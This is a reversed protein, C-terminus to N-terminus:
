QIIEALSLLGAALQHRSARMRPLNVVVTPKGGKSGVGVAVSGERVWSAVGTVSLAGVKESAAIVAELDVGPSAYIVTQPSARAALTSAEVIEGEVGEVRFAEKLEDAFDPRNGSYAILVQPPVDSDQLTRDLSLVKSLIAAQLPAAVAMHQAALPPALVAM